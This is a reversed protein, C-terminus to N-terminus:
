NRDPESHNPRIPTYLHETADQMRRRALRLRREAKAQSIGLILVAEALSYRQVDCLLFVERCGRQLQFAHLLVVQMVASSITRKEMLSGQRFHKLRFAPLVVLDESAYNQKNDCYHM